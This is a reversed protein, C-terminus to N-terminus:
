TQELAIKKEHGPSVLFHQETCFPEFDILFLSEAKLDYGRSRESFAM